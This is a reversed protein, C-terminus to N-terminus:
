LLDMLRREHRTDISVEGSMGARLPPSGPERAVRIRVPIRQVVKVWNGTSNQAPLISFTAGSAPAISEVTGHWTVGPYTDVTVTAQNGERVYALDTEKPQAEIWVHDTAVIAFAPTAAALFQGPQLQSVRTVTGAFPARVTAHELQRRAEALQAAAQLYQPHREVPAEADGGLRVLAVEMQSRLSALQQQEQQLGFRAQDYAARSVASSAVLQAQREFNARALEVSAEQAAIDNRMRQIDAQQAHLTLAIQGLNARAADVAHVFAAPDLQFLVQGAVVEEGERVAIAQVIGSVDTAVLLRDAQVYANDTSVYRGGALWVHGAVLIAALIGGLMLAPRLWRRRQRGPAPTAADPAAPREAVRLSGEPM